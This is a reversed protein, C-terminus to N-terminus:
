RARAGGSSGTGLDRGPSWSGSPATLPDGGRLGRVCARCRGVPHLGLLGPGPAPQVIARCSEGALKPRGPLGLPQDDRQPRLVEERRSVHGLERVVPALLLLGRSGGIWHPPPGPVRSLSPESGWSLM